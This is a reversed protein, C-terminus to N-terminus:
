NRKSVTKPADCDSFPHCILKSQGVCVFLSAFSYRLASFFDWKMCVTVFILHSYFYLIITVIASSMSLHACWRVDLTHAVPFPAKLSRHFCHFFSGSNSQSPFLYSFICKEISQQSEVTCVFAFHSFFFFIFPSSSSFSSSSDNLKFHVSIKTHFLAQCLITHM